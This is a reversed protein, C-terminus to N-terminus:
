KVEIRKILSEKKPINISIKLLGDTLNASEVESGEALRYLRNFSRKSIGHWTYKSMDENEGKGSIKLTDNEVSVDIEDKKIGALAM